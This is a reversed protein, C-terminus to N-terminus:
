CCITGAPFMQNCFRVSAGVTRALSVMLLHEPHECVNMYELPDSVFSAAEHHQGGLADRAEKGDTWNLPTECV